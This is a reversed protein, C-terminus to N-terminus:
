LGVNGWRAGFCRVPLPASKNRPRFCGVREEPKSVISCAEEQMVGKDWFLNFNNELGVWFSVRVCLVCLLSIHSFGLATLNTGIEVHAAAKLSFGSGIFSSITYPYNAVVFISQVLKKQSKRSSTTKNYRDKIVSCIQVNRIMNSSSHRSRPSRPLLLTLFPPTTLEVTSISYLNRHTGNKACLCSYSKIWTLGPQAYSAKESATLHSRRCTLESARWRTLYLFSADHGRYPSFM